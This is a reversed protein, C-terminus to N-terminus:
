MVDRGAVDPQDSAQSNSSLGFANNYMKDLCAHVFRAVSVLDDRWFFLRMTSIGVFLGATSNPTTLTQGTFGEAPNKTALVPVHSRPRRDPAIKAGNIRNVHPLKFCVDVRWGIAGLSCRYIELFHSGDCRESRAVERLLLQGPCGTYRHSTGDLTRLLSAGRWLFIM